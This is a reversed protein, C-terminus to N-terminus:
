GRLGDDPKPTQVKTNLRKFRLNLHAISEGPFHCKQVKRIPVGSVGHLEIAQSPVLTGLGLSM